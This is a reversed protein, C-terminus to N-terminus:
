RGRLQIRAFVRDREENVSSVIRLILMYRASYMEFKPKGLVLACSFQQADELQQPEECQMREQQIMRERDVRLAGDSLVSSTVDIEEAGKGNSALLTDAVANVIPGASWFEKSTRWVSLVGLGLVVVAGFGIALFDRLSREKLWLLATFWLIKM